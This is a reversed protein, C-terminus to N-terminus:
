ARAGCPEDLMGRVADQGVGAMAAKELIRGAEIGDHQIKERPVPQHRCRAGRSLSRHMACPPERPGLWKGGASKSIPRPPPHRLRERDPGPHTSGPPALASPLPNTALSEWAPHPM